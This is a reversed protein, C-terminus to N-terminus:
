SRHIFNGILEILQHSVMPKEFRGVVNGPIAENKVDSTAHGSILIVTLDSGDVELKKALEVGSMGPLRIDLLLCGSQDSRHRGLFDEASAFAQVNFGVAQLLATTSDLVAKDDDVVYVIPQSDM